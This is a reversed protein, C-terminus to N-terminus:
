FLRGTTFPWFRFFRAAAFCGPADRPVDTDHRLLGLAVPRTRGM